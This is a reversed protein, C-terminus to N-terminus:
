TSEGKIAALAPAAAALAPTASVGLRRLVHWAGCVNSSVIPVDFDAAADRMAELTTMGTGTLVAVDGDLGRSRELAHRVEAARLEYARFEESVPVIAAVRIGAGDWYSKARDTLWAPYPTVLRMSRAGLARLAALIALSVMEVACGATAALRDALALDGGMGLGYSPATAGIVVADLELSGFSKVAAPYADAYRDVRARLDGPLVPLRTAYLHVDEPLLARFEPEITPNAPPVVLGV